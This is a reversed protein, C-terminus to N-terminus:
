EETLSVNYPDIVQDFHETLKAKAAPTFSGEPWAEEIRDLAEKVEPIPPRRRFRRLSTRNSEAAFFAMREGFAALRGAETWAGLEFHPALPDPYLSRLSSEISHLDTLRVEQLNPAAESRRFRDIRVEVERRAQPEELGSAHHYLVGLTHAFLDIKEPDGTEIAVRLDILTAGSQFAVVPFNVSSDEEQGRNTDFPGLKDIMLPDPKGLAAALTEIKQPEIPLHLQRWVAAGVGILLLAALPWAVNRFLNSSIPSKRPEFPLVARRAEERDEKQFRLSETYIEYCAACKDLHSAMARRETEPLRGDLYAAISELAPHDSQHTNAAFPPLNNM